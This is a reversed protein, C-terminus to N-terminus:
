FRGTFGWYLRDVLAPLLSVSDPPSKIILFFPNNPLNIYLSITNKDPNHQRLNLGKPLLDFIPGSVLMPSTKTTVIIKSIQDPSGIQDPNNSWVLNQNNQSSTAIYFPWSSFDQSITPFTAEPVSTSKQPALSLRRYLMFILPLFITLVMIVFILRRKSALQKDQSLADVLNLQESEQSRSKRIKEPKPLV